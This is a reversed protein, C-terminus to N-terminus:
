NSATIFVEPGLLVNDGLVIRGHSDGAWLGCREGIHVDRGLEIREGNRLSANPALRLGPGAALRRRPGVHAYAYYNAVKVLHLWTRVDLVRRLLSGATSQRPREGVDITM